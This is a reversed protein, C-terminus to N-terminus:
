QRVSAAPRVGPSCSQVAGGSIPSIVTLWCMILACILAHTVEDGGLGVLQALADSNAEVVGRYSEKQLTFLPLSAETLLETICAILAQETVEFVELRGRASVLTSIM